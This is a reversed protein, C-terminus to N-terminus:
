NGQGGTRQVGNGASAHSQLGVSGPTTRQLARAPQSVACAHFTHARKQLFGPTRSASAAIAQEALTLRQLQPTAPPGPWLPSPSPPTWHRNCRRRAIACTKWNSAPRASLSMTAAWSSRYRGAPPRFFFGVIGGFCIFIALLPVLAALLARNHHPVSLQQLKGILRGQADQDFATDHKGTRERANSHVPTPQFAADAHLPAARSQVSM